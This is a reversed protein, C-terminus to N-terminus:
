FVLSAPLWRPPAIPPAVPRPGLVELARARVADPVPGSRDSRMSEILGGVEVLRERCSACSGGLHDEIRRRDTATLRDDLYDLLTRTDLHARASPPRRM